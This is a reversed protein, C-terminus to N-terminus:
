PDVDGVGEIPCLLQLRETAQLGYVCFSMIQTSDTWRRAARKTQLSKQRELLTSVINDFKAQYSRSVRLFIVLKVINKLIFVPFTRIDKGFSRRGAETNASETAANWELIWPLLKIYQRNKKM